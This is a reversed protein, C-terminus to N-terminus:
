IEYHDFLDTINKQIAISLPTEGVNNAIRIDAGNAILWEAIEIAPEDQSLCLVLPTNGFKDVPDLTHGKAILWQAAPLQNHIVAEHLASNCHCRDPQYHIDSGLELLYEMCDIRSRKVAYMFPTYFGSGKCSNVDLGRDIFEKLKDLLGNEAAVIALCDLNNM